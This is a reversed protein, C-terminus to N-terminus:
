SNNSLSLPLQSDVLTLFNIQIKVQLMGVFTNSSLNMRISM